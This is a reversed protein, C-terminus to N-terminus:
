KNVKKRALFEEKIIKILRQVMNSPASESVAAKRLRVSTVDLWKL